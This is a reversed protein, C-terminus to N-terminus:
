KKKEKELNEKVRFKVIKTILDFPIPANLPFQVSGKGSKYKSLEKKFTEHGSPLAYLGIHKKFAAFYVVIGNQEFAPMSYSIKEKADPAAKQITTRVKKLIEQINNPFGGIYEDITSPKKIDM